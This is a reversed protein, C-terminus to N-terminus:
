TEDAPNDAVADGGEDWTDLAEGGGTADRNRAPWLALPTADRLAVAPGNTDSQTRGLVNGTFDLLVIELHVSGGKSAM